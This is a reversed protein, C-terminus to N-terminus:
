PEIPHTRCNAVLGIVRRGIQVTVSTSIHLYGGTRTRGRRGLGDLEFPGKRYIVKAKVITRAKLIQIPPLVYCKECLLFVHHFVVAYVRSRM